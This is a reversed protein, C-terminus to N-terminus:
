TQIELFIEEPVLFKCKFVSDGQISNLRDGESFQWGIGFGRVAALFGRDARLFLDIM